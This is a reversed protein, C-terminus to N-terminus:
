TTWSLAVTIGAGNGLSFRRGSLSGPIPHFRGLLGRRRTRTRLATKIHEFDSTSDRDSEHFGRVAWLLEEASLTTTVLQDRLFIVEYFTQLLSRDSTFSPRSLSTQSYCAFVSSPSHRTTLLLPLVDHFTSRSLLCEFQLSTGQQARAHSTHNPSVLGTASTSVM